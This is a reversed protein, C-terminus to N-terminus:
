TEPGIGEREKRKLDILTVGDVHTVLHVEMDEPIVLRIDDRLTQIEACAIESTFMTLADIKM